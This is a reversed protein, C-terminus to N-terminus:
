EQPGLNSQNANFIPSPAMKKQRCAAKKWIGKKYHQKTLNCCLGLYKHMAFYVELSLSFFYELDRCHEYGLIANNLNACVSYMCLLVILAM